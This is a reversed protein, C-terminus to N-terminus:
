INFISYLIYFYINKLNLLNYKKNDIFYKIIDLNGKKCVITFLHKEM